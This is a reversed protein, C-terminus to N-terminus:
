WKVHVTIWEAAATPREEWRMKMLGSQLAQLVKIDVGGATALPFVYEPRGHRNVAVMFAVNGSPTSGELVGAPWAAAVNVTRETNEPVAYPQLPEAETAVALTLPPAATEPLLPDGPSMIRPMEQPALPQTFPKLVARRLMWSPEAAPTVAALAALDAQRTYDETRVIAGPYRDNIASLLARVEPDQPPLYVVAHQQPPTRTSVSPVVRFLYFLATHAAAAVLLFAALRRKVGRTRKWQFILPPSADPPRSLRVTDEPMAATKRKAAPKDISSNFEEARRDRSGCYRSFGHGGECRFPNASAECPAGAVHAFDV